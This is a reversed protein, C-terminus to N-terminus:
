NSHPNPSAKAPLLLTRAERAAAGLPAGAWGGLGWGEGGGRAGSGAVSLISMRTWQAQDRYAADVRDQADLYSPYDNGLLYYDGGKKPPPTNSHPPHKFPTPTQIPHTNSHPTNSPPPDAAPGRLM